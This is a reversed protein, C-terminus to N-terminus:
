QQAPKVMTPSSRTTSVPRKPHFPQSAPANSNNAAKYKQAFRLLYPGLLSFAEASMQAAARKGQIIEHFFKSRLDIDSMTADTIKESMSLVFTRRYAAGPFSLLYAM